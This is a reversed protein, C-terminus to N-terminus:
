EPNEPAAPLPMWHTPGYGSLWWNLEGSLKGDTDYEIGGEWFHWERCKKIAPAIINGEMVIVVTEDPATEIPKWEM